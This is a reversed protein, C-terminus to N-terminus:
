RGARALLYSRLVLRLEDVLAPRDSEPADVIMPMM